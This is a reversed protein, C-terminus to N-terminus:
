KKRGNRNRDNKLLQRRKQREEAIGESMAGLFAIEEWDLGVRDISEAEENLEDHLPDEDADPLDYPYNEDMFDSDDFDDYEDFFDGCM